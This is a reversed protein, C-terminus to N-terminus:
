RTDEMYNEDNAEEARLWGEGRRNLEDWLLRDEEPTLDKIFAQRDDAAVWEDLIKEGNAGEAIQMIAGWRKIEEWQEDPLFNKIATALGKTIREAIEMLVESFHAIAETFVDIQEREEAVIEAKRKGGANVFEDLRERRTRMM